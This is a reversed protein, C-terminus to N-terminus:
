KKLDGARNRVDVSILYTTEGFPSNGQKMVWAFNYLGPAPPATVNFIYSVQEGPMVDHSLEIDEYKSIGKDTNM